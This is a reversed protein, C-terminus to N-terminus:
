ARRINWSLPMGKLNTRQAAPQFFLGLSLFPVDIFTQAQIEAGIRQQDASSAGALWEDAVGRAEAGDALRVM